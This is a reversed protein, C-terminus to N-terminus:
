VPPLHVGVLTISDQSDGQFTILVNGNSNALTATPMSSYHLTDHAFNYNYIQVHGITGFTNQNFYFADSGGVGVTIQDNTSVDILDNQGSGINIINNGGLGNTTIYDGNGNGMTIHNSTLSSGASNTVYDGDGNGM